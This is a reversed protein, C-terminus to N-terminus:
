KDAHCQINGERANYEGTKKISKDYERRTLLAIGAANDASFEPESFYVKGLASLRKAIRKNSM